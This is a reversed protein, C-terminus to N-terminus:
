ICTINPFSSCKQLSEIIGFEDFFYRHCFFHTHRLSKRLVDIKQFLEATFNETNKNSCQPDIKWREENGLAIKKKM